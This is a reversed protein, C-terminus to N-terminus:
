IKESFRLNLADELKEKLEKVHSVLKSVQESLDALAYVELDSLEKRRNLVKRVFHELEGYRGDFQKICLLVEYM